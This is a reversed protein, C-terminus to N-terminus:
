PYLNSTECLRLPQELDLRQSAAVFVEVAMVPFGDRAM